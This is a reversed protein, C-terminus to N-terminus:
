VSTNKKRALPSHAAFMPLVGALMHTKLSLTRTDLLMSARQNDLRPVGESGGGLLPKWQFTQYPPYLPYVLKYSYIYYKNLIIDYLIFVCPFDLWTDYTMMSYIYIYIYIYKITHTDRYETGLSQHQLDGDGKKGHGKVSSSESM